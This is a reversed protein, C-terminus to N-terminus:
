SVVERPHDSTCRPCPKRAVLRLNILAHTQYREGCGCTVLSEPEGDYASWDLSKPDAPDPAPTLWRMM